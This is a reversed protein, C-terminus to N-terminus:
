LSVGGVASFDAPGRPATSMHIGCIPRTHAAHAGELALRGHKLTLGTIAGRSLPDTHPTRNGQVSAPLCVCVTHRQV